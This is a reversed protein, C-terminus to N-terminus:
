YTFLQVTCRIEFNIDTVDVFIPGNLLSIIIRNYTTVNVYRKVLTSMTLCALRKFITNLSLSVHPELM